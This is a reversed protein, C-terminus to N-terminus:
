RWQKSGVINEREEEMLKIGVEEIRTDGLAMITTTDTTEIELRSSTERERGRERKKIKVILAANSIFCM